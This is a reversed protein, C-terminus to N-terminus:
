FFECHCFDLVGTLGGGTFTLKVNDTGAAAEFLRTGIKPGVYVSGKAEVVLPSEKQAGFGEHYVTDSVKTAVAEKRWTFTGSVTDSAPAPEFKTITFQGLFSGGSFYLPVFLPVEGDPGVFASSSFRSGDALAGTNTLMGTTGNVIMTGFGYGEPVLESASSKKELYYTYTGKVSLLHKCEREDLHEAV